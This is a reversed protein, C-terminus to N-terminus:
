KIREKKKNWQQSENQKNNSENWVCVCPCVQAHFDEKNMRYNKPRM